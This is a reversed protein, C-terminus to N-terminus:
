TCSFHDVSGDSPVLPLALTRSKLETSSGALPSGFSTSTEAMVADDLYETMQDGLGLPLHGTCSATLCTARVGIISQLPSRLEHCVFAIRRLVFCVLLDIASGVLQRVCWDSKQKDLQEILRKSRESEELRQLYRSRISGSRFANAGTCRRENSSLGLLTASTVVRASYVSDGPLVRCCRNHSCIFRSHNRHSLLAPESYIGPQAARLYDVHPVCRLQWKRGLQPVPATTM